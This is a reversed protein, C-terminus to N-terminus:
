LRFSHGEKAIVKFPGAQQYDLKKSPRETRWGKTSVWVKDGVGFDVPRRLVQKPRPPREEMAQDRRDADEQHKPDPENDQLAEKALPLEHAAVYDRRKNPWILKRRKCNILV